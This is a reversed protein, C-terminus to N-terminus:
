IVLKINCADKIEDIGSQFCSHFCLNETSFIEVPLNVMKLIIYKLVEHRGGMNVWKRDLM